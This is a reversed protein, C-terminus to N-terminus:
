PGLVGIAVVQGGAGGSDRVGYTVTGSTASFDWLISAQAGPGGATPYGVASGGEPLPVPEGEGTALDWLILKSGPPNGPSGGRERGVAFARGLLPIMGFTRRGQQFLANPGLQVNRFDDPLALRQATGEALDVVMLGRNGAFPPLSIGRPNTRPPGGTALAVIRNLGPLQQVQVPNGLSIGANEPLEVTSFTETDGDFIHVKTPAELAVERDGDAFYLYSNLGGKAGQELPAPAEVTRMEGTEVDFLILHDGVCLENEQPRAFEGFPERAGVLALTGTLPIPLWRVLPHCNAAYSGEPFPTVSVDVPISDPYTPDPEEEAPADSPEDAPMDTADAAPAPEPLAVQFTVVADRMGDSSRVIGFVSTSPSFDSLAPSVSNGAENGQNNIRRPPSIPAWGEPYAGEYVVRALPDFLVATPGSAESDPGPGLFRMRYGGSGTLNAAQAITTSRGNVNLPTELPVAGSVDGILEGEPSMLYFGAGNPKELRLAPNNGFAAQVRDVPEDLAVVQPGAGSATDILVLRDTQAEGVDGVPVALAALVTTGNSSEFPRYQAQGPALPYSPLLCHDLVTATESRFDLLNTGSYCFEGDLDLPGTLAVSYPALESLDLRAPSEVGEPVAMYRPEPSRIEGLLAQAGINASYWSLVGGSGAGEPVEFTMEYVGVSTGSLQVSSIELPVGDLYARQENAPSLGAGLDGNEPPTEPPGLGVSFITLAEGATVTVPAPEEEAAPTGVLQPGIGDPSGEGGMVVLTRTGPLTFLEPRAAAILIPVAAGVESGDKRVSVVNLGPEVDWPVQANIQTPSVFFIPSPTGNILVEVPPDGLAHPLPVSEANVHASSFGTGVVALVGGQAVAAPVPRLTIGPLFGRLSIEPPPDPELEMEQGPAVCAAAVLGALLIRCTAM